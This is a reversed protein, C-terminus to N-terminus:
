QISHKLIVFSKFSEFIFVTICVLEKEDDTVSDLMFVYNSELGVGKNVKVSKSSSHCEWSASTDKPKNNDTEKNM